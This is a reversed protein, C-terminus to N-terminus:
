VVREWYCWLLHWYSICYAFFCLEEWLAYPTADIEMEMACM